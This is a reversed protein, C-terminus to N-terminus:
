NTLEQPSPKKLYSVRFIRFVCQSVHIASQTQLPQPNPHGSSSSTSSTPPSKIIKTFSTSSASSATPPITSPSKSQSASHIQSAASPSTLTDKPTTRHSFDAYVGPLLSSVTLISFVYLSHEPTPTVMPPGASSTTPPPVNSPTSSKSQDAAVVPFSYSNAYVNSSNTPDAFWFIYDGSDSLYSYNSVHNQSCTGPRCHLFSPLLRIRSHIWM